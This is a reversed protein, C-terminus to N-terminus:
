RVNATFPQDLGLERRWVGLQTLAQDVLARHAPENLWRSVGSPHPLPLLWADGEQRWTGVLAELPAPAYFEEIAMKGALLIVRPQLVALEARWWHACLAREARGPPRDGRGSGSRGPDCRTVSTLYVDRRLAGPAFGAQLLWHEIVRGSPGAFPVGAVDSREGPAQGLLVVNRLGQEGVIPHARALLGAAQCARCGALDEQLTRLRAAREDPRTPPIDPSVLNGAAM